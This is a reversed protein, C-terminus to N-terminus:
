VYKILSKPEQSTGRSPEPEPGLASDEMERQCVQTAPLTVRQREDFGTIRLDFSYTPPGHGGSQKKFVRDDGNEWRVFFDRKGGTDKSVSM